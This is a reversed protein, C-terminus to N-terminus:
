KVVLKRVATWGATQVRVFYTGAAMSSVDFDLQSNATTFRHMQRGDVSLVSVEAEGEFAGISLTVHETAPNPHIAFEGMGDVENINVSGTSVEEAWDSNWDEGCIARVRFGYNGNNGKTGSSALGPFTASNTNVVVYGLQNNLDFGAYGYSVIWQQNREGATWTVHVDSGSVSVEVNTAPYCTNEFLVPDSWEGVVHDDTGCYARVAVRYSSGSALGTITAPNTNVDYYLNVDSNWVRIEWRNGHMNGDNWSVVASHAGVTPVSVESPISCATDTKVRATVWDSYDDDEISCVRRLRIDFETMGLLNNFTFRHDDNVVMSADWVNDTALKISVEVTANENFWDVTISSATTTIRNIVPEFCVPNCGFFKLDPVANSASKAGAPLSNASEPSLTYGYVNLFGTYVRNASAAHAAAYLSNTSSYSGGTSSLIGVVVNSSGDWEFPTSFGLSHEGPEIVMQGEYVKVFTTDYVFASLSTANTHGMYIEIPTNALSSIHVSDFTYSLGNINGMGTLMSADVLIETYGYYHTPDFISNMSVTDTMTSTYNIGENRDVCFQTTFSVVDSPESQVYPGCVGIVRVEYSTSMDLPSILITDVGEVMRANWSWQGVPRYQVKYTPSTGNWRVVATRDTIDSVTVNSPDVCTTVGGVKLDDLNTGYPNSHSIAKLAVQYLPAGQSAPLVYYFKKWMENRITNTDVSGILTWAGTEGVRYYVELENSPYPVSDYEYTVNSYEYIKRTANFYFSLEASGAMGSFDFTPLVLMTEGDKRDRMSMMQSGSHAYPSPLSSYMEHVYPAWTVKGSMRKQWMCTMEGEFETFYPEEETVAIPTCILNVAGVSFPVSRDTGCNGYVWIYYTPGTLGTITPTTSTVVMSDTATELNDNASWVVTYGSHTNQDTINLTISNMTVNDVTVDNLRRCAPLVRVTINDINYSEYNPSIDRIYIRGEPGNYNEFSVYMLKWEYSDGDVDFTNVGIYTSIDNPNTCVGVELRGTNTYTQMAYFEMELNNIPGEMEPLILSTNQNYFYISSGDNYGEYTDLYPYYAYGYETYRDWCNQTLSSGSTAVFSSGFNEVFPLAYPGCLTTAVTTAGITTDSCISSVRFVYESAVALNTITYSLDNISAAAVTWSTSDSHRYEVKYATATTSAAWTLAVSHTDPVATLGAPPMCSTEACPTLFVVTNRYNVLSAAWGTFLDSAPNTPVYPTGDRYVYMAMIDDGTNTIRNSTSSTWSNTHDNFTLVVNKGAPVVFGSDFAIEVWGQKMHVTGSFYRKDATPVVYDSHSTYSSLSTTDMYVDIERDNVASSTQYFKFGYINNIGELEVATFLQQSLTNGYTIYSPLYSTTTTGTGVQIDGGVDCGTVFSTELTDIGECDLALRVLYGTREDLNTLLYSRDTGSVPITEVELGTVPDIVYLTFGTAEGLVTNYAWSVTATSGAINSVALNYPTTCSLLDVCSVQFAFGEDTYYDYDGGKFWITMPGVESTLSINNVDVNMYSALLFGNTDSGAFIRVKNREGSYDYGNGLTVSGQIHVAQGETAPQLVILNESMPEFDGFLGGNDTITIGCSTVTDFPATVVHVNSRTRVSNSWYGHVSGCVARVYFDYDVADDLGTVIAPNTTAPWLSVGTADPDFGAPGYAIEWVTGETDTWGLKVQGSAVFQNDVALNDALSCNVRERIIVDDVYIAEGGLAQPLRFVVWISDTTTVTDFSVIFRAWEYSYNSSNYPTPGINGVQHFVATASDNTTVYGVQIADGGKVWAVVEVQNASVPMKPTMISNTGGNSYFILTSASNHGYDVGYPYVYACPFTYTNEYNYYTTFTEWQTWCAPLNANIGAIPNEFDDSIPLSTLGCATRFSLTSITSTDGVACVSRVFFYYITNANLGNLNITTTTVQDWESPPVPSTGYAYLWSNASGAEVWSVTASSSTVNSAVMSGPRPCTPCPDIDISFGPNAGTANCLVAGLSDTVTFSNESQYSGLANYNVTIPGANTCIRLTDISMTGEPTEYSGSLTYTGIVADGQTVTLTNGNWGDTYSDLLTIVLYCNYNGDTCQAQARNGFAVLLFLTAFIISIKKM